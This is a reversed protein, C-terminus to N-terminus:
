GSVTAGNQGYSQTLTGASGIEHNISAAQGDLRADRSRCMANQLNGNFKVNHQAYLAWAEAYVVIGGRKRACDCLYASYKTLRNVNLYMSIDITLFVHMFMSVGLYGQSNGGRRISNKARAHTQESYIYLSAPCEKRKSGLWMVCKAYM